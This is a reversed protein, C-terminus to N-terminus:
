ILVLPSSLSLSCNASATFFIKLPFTSPSNFNSRPWIDMPFHFWIMRSVDLTNKGNNTAEMLVKSTDRTIQNWKGISMQGLDFKLEGDENGKFINKVADALQEKDKDEGRTKIHYYNALCISANLSLMMELCIRQHDKRQPDEEKLTKSYPEYILYPYEKYNELSM